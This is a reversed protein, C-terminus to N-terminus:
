SSASIETASTEKASNVEGELRLYSYKGRAQKFIWALQM